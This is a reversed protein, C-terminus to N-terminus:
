KVQDELVAAQDALVRLRAAALESLSGFEQNDVLDDFQVQEPIKESAVQAQDYWAVQCFNAAAQRVDGIAKDVACRKDTAMEALRAPMEPEPTKSLRTLADLAKLLTDVADPGLATKGHQAAVFCDEMAHALTVAVDLGVIRAAGKISHSARMLSELTEKAAQGKELALLGDSLNKIQGEAEMRFLELMSFGGLDQAGSQSM